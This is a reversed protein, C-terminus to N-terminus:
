FRIGIICVDDTQEYDGKWNAFTKELENHQENISLQSTQLLLNKLNSSKFKKAKATGNETKNNGFQDAYGDSFLYLSVLSSPLAHTTFPKPDITIGVPQKDAKIEKLENNEFFWLPNNAGAWHLQKKSVNFSLLSIDMGDNVHQGGKEFTELVLERTKDLIKGPDTLNFEKISRSLSNSCLVSMMAGPVGHGTCDAVAIFNVDQHQEFFFFDGAVIDKPKYLVFNSPWIKKINEISPLIASQLRQAYSISDIIEKNKVELVVRQKEIEENKIGLLNNQETIKKNAKKNAILSRFILISLISIVLFGIALAYFKFSQKENIAQQEKLKAQTGEKEKKLLEVKKQNLEMELDALKGTTSENLMSDKLGVYREYYDIAREYEKKGKYLVFYYKLANQRWEKFNYKLSIFYGKNLYPLASAYDKITIYEHALNLSSFCISYVNNDEEAMELVKKDYFIAKEGNGLRGQINALLTYNAMLYNRNGKILNIHYAMTILSDATKNEGKKFYTMGINHLSAALATSDKNAKAQKIVSKNLEISKDLQNIKDYYSTEAMLLKIGYEYHINKNSYKKGEAIKEACKDYEGVDSYLYSWYAYVFVLQNYDKQKLAMEAAKEFLSEAIEFHASEYEFGLDTLLKIKGKLDKEADVKIQLSDPISNNKKALLFNPLVLFFFLSLTYHYLNKM